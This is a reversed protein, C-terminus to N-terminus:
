KKAAQIAPFPGYKHQHESFSDAYPGFPHDFPKATIDPWDEPFSKQPRPLSNIYAAVDWAEEDTLIPKDFTVGYPMNNKVYGAFRSLRHLGAGTNFSRAGALPPYKWEISDAHRTGEGKAGHCLQCYKEYVARGAVPDAARNLLPLSPLGAGKPVDGKNVDQGLWRFWAIIARMELSEDDLKSGNLSRELCDNVRKEMSELKGSRTRFKPYTSVVASFNNGFAKTGGKLHCNQCNMGNSIVRVKGQPGLYRATHAILEYGYRILDGEPTLPIRTSDPREWMRDIVNDSHAALLVPQAVAANTVGEPDGRYFAIAFTGVMLLLCLQVLLVACKIRRCFDEDESYRSM